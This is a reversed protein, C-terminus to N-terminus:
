LYSGFDNYLGVNNTGAVINAQKADWTPRHQGSMKWLNKM